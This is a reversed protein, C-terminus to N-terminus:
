SDKRLTRRYINKTGFNSTETVNKFALFDFVSHLLSVVMTIALLYPNGELFVRRMINNLYSPFFYKIIELALNQKLYRVLIEYILIASNM